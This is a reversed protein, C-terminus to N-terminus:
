FSFGLSFGPVVADLGERWPDGEHVRAITLVTARSSRFSM